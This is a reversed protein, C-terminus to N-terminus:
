RQNNVFVVYVGGDVGNFRVLEKLADAVALSSARKLDRFLAVVAGFM